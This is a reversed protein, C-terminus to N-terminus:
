SSSWRVRGLSYRVVYGISEASLVFLRETQNLSVDVFQYLVLLIINVGALHRVFVLLDDADLFVFAPCYDFLANRASLVATSAWV